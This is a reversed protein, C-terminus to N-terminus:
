RRAALCAVGGIWLFVPALLVWRFDSQLAFNMGSMLVVTLLGSVVFASVAGKLRTTFLTCALYLVLAGAAAMFGGMVVFVHNLWNELGPVATEIAVLTTGMFRPDEPLLAPRMLAFYMGLGLLWVGSAGMMWAGTRYLGSGKDNMDEPKSRAADIFGVCSHWCCDERFGRASRV